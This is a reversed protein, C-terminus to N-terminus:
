LISNITKQRQIKGSTTEVFSKVFFIDKPIEFKSLLGSNSIKEKIELTDLAESEVILIVKEGFISDFKSAIIFRSSILPQLKKEIQEPFVKIGGSNIVNDYRGLWKFETESKLDVIDNTVLVDKSIKPAEIKLCDKDDQYFKVNPLAKFYDQSNQSKSKLRKLAIHTVTETMGYTEYFSSSASEITKLLTKPISSGGIIITKINSTKEIVNALQLPVMASFDYHKKTDFPPHSTPTVVDMDLGLIMARIWMMKGAIYHSPLVNLICDGPKLNFFNGTAIASNVMAQKAIKIKKPTGTSGSTNVFIFESDDLWDILFKGTSEEFAENSEALSHALNQFEKRSYIKGNYRFRAHINKYSPAM